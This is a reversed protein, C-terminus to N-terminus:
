PGGLVCKRARCVATAVPPPCDIRACSTPDLQECDTRECDAIVRARGYDSLARTSECCGPCCSPVAFCDDDSACAFYPDVPVATCTGGVCAAVARNMPADCTAVACGPNGPVGECGAAFAARDAARIAVPDACCEGCPEALACDADVGCSLGGSRTPAIPVEAIPTSLSPEPQPVRPAPVCGALAIVLCWWDSSM